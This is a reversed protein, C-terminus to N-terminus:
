INMSSFSVYSNDYDSVSADNALEEAEVEIFAHRKSTELAIAQLSRKRVGGGEVILSVIQINGENDGSDYGCEMNSFSADNALKELGEADVETFAHLSAVEPVPQRKSTTQISPFVQISQFIQHKGEKYPANIKLDPFKKATRQLTELQRDDWIQVPFQYQNHEDRFQKWYTYMETVNKSTQVWKWFEPCIYIIEYPPLWTLKPPPPISPWCNQQCNRALLKITSPTIVEGYQFSWQGDTNETNQLRKHCKKCEFACSYRFNDLNITSQQQAREKLLKTTAKDWKLGKVSWTNYSFFISCNFESSLM